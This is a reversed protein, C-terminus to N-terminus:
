RYRLAKDIRDPRRCSGTPWQAGGAKNTDDAFRVEARSSGFGRGKHTCDQNNGGYGRGYNSSDSYDIHDLRASRRAQTM